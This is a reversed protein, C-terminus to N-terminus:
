PIYLVYYLLALLSLSYSIFLVIISAAIFSSLWLGWQLPKNEVEDEVYEIDVDIYNKNRRKNLEKECLALFANKKDETIQTIHKKM